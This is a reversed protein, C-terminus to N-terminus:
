NKECANSVCYMNPVSECYNAFKVKVPELSERSKLDGMKLHQEMHRLIVLFLVSLLYLFAQYAYKALPWFARIM